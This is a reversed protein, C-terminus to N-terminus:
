CLVLVILVIMVVSPNLSQPPRPYSSKTGPSTVLVAGEPFSVVHDGVHHALKGGIWRMQGSPQDFIDGTPAIKTGNVGLVPVFIICGGGAITSSTWQQIM